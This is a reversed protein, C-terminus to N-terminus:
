DDTYLEKMLYKLSYPNYTFNNVFSIAAEYDTTGSGDVGYEMNAGYGADRMLTAVAAINTPTIANSTLYSNSMNNWEYTTNITALRVLDS